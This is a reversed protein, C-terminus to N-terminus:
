LHSLRRHRSDQAVVTSDALHLRKSELSRWPHVLDHHCNFIKHCWVNQSMLVYKSMLVNQSIFIKHCWCMKHCFYKTVDFCKTVCFKQSLFVNQSLKKKHSWFMQSLFMKHGGPPQSCCGQGLGLALGPGNPNSPLIFRCEAVAKSVGQQVHWIWETITCM